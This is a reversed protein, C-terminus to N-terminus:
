TRISWRSPNLLRVPKGEPHPKALTTSRIVTATQTYAGPGGTPTTVSVVQMPEGNVRWTYGGASAWTDEYWESTIAIATQVATTVPAALATTQSDGRAAAWVGVQTWPVAPTCTIEVLWRHKSISTSYGLILLDAVEGAVQAPLNAITIRSGVRCSLWARMLQPNRVLDITIRPWRLVDRTGVAVHWGADDTLQEDNQVNVEDGDAYPRNRGVSEADEVTRESGNPRSSTWRNILELDDDTPEPAVHLHGAKWDLALAVPVNVRAAFPLYGLIGGREFLLGTGAAEADRAVELATADRPQPGLAVGAGAEVAVKINADGLVRAVRATDLEGAYGASVKRFASGLFPVTPTGVYLQTALTGDVPAGLVVANPRTVTGAIFDNGTFLFDNSGVQHWTINHLISGGSQQALFRVAWWKTLDIFHFTTDQPVVVDGNADYGTLSFAVNNAELLWRAVSGGGQVEMFTSYTASPLTPFRFYTVVAYGAQPIRWSAVRGSIKSVGATDLSVASLAGAPADDSGFTAATASAPVGRPRGLASGPSTTDNGDELRWHAQPDYAAFQQSIASLLPPQGQGLWRLVGSASVPAIADNGSRDPWRVPWEPVQGTFLSTAVTISRFTGSMTGANTAIRWVYLGIQNGTILNDDARAHWVTPENVGDRWARIQITRGIVQIRTAVRTNVTATSGTLTNTVLEIGDGNLWRVIKVRIQGDPSIETHVAYYNDADVRRVHMATVWAGGTPVQEVTHVYHLDLDLGVPPSLRMTSATNAVALSIRGVGGSISWGTSTPSWAVGSQPEIGWGSSETRTFREAVAGLQVRLPTNKDIQGYWPGMVNRPSLRGDRDDFTIECSGPKITDDEDDRGTTIEIGAKPRWRLGEATFAWGAPDGSPNAGPAVEGTVPLPIMAM